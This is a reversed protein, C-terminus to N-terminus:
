RAGAREPDGKEGDFEEAYIAEVRRVENEALAAFERRRARASLAGGNQRLFRFLLDAIGAPMYVIEQIRKAFRDYSEM